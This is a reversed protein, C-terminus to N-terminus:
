HTDDDIINKKQRIRECLELAHKGADKGEEDDDGGRRTLQSCDICTNHATRTGGDKEGHKLFIIQL